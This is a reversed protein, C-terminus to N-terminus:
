ESINGIRGRAKYAEHAAKVEFKTYGGLNGRVTNVKIFAEEDCLDVYPFGEPSKKFLVM